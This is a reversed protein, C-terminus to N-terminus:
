IKCYYKYLHLPNKNKLDCMLWCFFCYSLIPSFSFFIKNTNCAYLIVINTFYM